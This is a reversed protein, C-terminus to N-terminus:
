RKTKKKTKLLDSYDADALVILEGNFIDVRSDGKKFMKKLKRALKERKKKKRVGHEDFFDGLEIWALDDSDYAMEPFLVDEVPEDNIADFADEITEGTAEEVAEEAVAETLADDMDHPAEALQLQEIQTSYLMKMESFAEKLLEVESRLTSTIMQNTEKLDRITEKLVTITEDKAALVDQMGTAAASSPNVSKPAPNDSRGKPRSAEEDQLIYLKGDVSKSTLIGKKIKAYVAQRSIGMQKAYESPKILNSM